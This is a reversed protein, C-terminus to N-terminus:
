GLIDSFGTQREYRELSFEEKAGLEQLTMRESFWACALWYARDRSEKGGNASRFGRYLELWDRRLDDTIFHPPILKKM